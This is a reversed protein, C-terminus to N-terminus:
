SDGHTIGALFWPQPRQPRCATALSLCEKDVAKWTEGPSTYSERSGATPTTIPPNGTHGVIYNTPFDSFCNLYQSM